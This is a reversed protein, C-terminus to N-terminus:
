ICTRDSTCLFIKKFKFYIEQVNENGVRQVKENEPSQISRYINKRQDYCYITLTFYVNCVKWIYAFLVSDRFKCRTPYVYLFYFRFFVMLLSGYFIISKSLIERDDFKLYIKTDDGKCKWTEWRINLADPIRWKYVCTFLKSLKTANISM